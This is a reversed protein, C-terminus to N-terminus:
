KLFRHKKILAKAEDVALRKQSQNLDRSLNFCDETCYWFGDSDQWHREDSPYVVGYKSCYPYACHKPVLPKNM